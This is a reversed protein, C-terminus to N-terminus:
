NMHMPPKRWIQRQPSTLDEPVPTVSPYSRGLPHQSNFKPGKSSGRLRQAMEGSGRVRNRIRKCVQISTSGIFDITAKRTIKPPFVNINEVTARGNEM